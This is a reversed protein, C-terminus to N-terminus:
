VRRRKIGGRNLRGKTAGGSLRQQRAFSGGMAMVPLSIASIIENRLINEVAIVRHSPLWLLPLTRLPHTCSKYLWQIVREESSLQRYRLFIRPRPKKSQFVGPVLSISGSETTQSRLTSMSPTGDIDKSSMGFSQNGTSTAGPTLRSFGRLMTNSSMRFPSDTTRLNTVSLRQQPRRTFIYGKKDQTHQLARSARTPIARADTKVRYLPLICMSNPRTQLEIDSGKSMIAKM